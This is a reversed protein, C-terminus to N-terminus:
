GTIVHLVSNFCYSLFLMLVSSTSCDLTDEASAGTSDSCCSTNATATQSCSFCIFCSFCIMNNNNYHLVVVVGCSVAPSYWWIMAGSNLLSYSQNSRVLQMTVNWHTCHSIYDVSCHIQMTNSTYVICKYQIVYIMLYHIQMTNFRDFWQIFHILCHIQMTNSTDLLTNAKYWIYWVIYKCPISHISCHIQM